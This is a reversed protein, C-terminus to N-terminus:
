GLTFGILPSNSDQYHDSIETRVLESIWAAEQGIRISPDEGTTLSGPRLALWENRDLVTILHM